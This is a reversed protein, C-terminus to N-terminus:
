LLKQGNEEIVFARLIKIPPTLTQGLAKASHIKEVLDMGKIVQGFAAFGQGDPNRKGGYDLEPQDTVCIFFNSTATDPGLRAM